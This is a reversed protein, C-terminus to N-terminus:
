EITRFIGYRMAPALQHNRHWGLELCDRSQAGLLRLKCVRLLLIAFLNRQRCEPQRGFDACLRSFNQFPKTFVTEIKPLHKAWRTDVQINRGETWGLKQLAERFASYWARADSDSETYGMLVGIRRMREAQQARVAVPWAAAAGGLLSIFERRRM